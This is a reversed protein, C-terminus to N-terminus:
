AKLSVVLPYLPTDAAFPSCIKKQVVTSYRLLISKRLNDCNGCAVHLDEQVRTHFQWILNKQHNEPNRTRNIPSTKILLSIAWFITSTVSFKGTDGTIARANGRIVRSQKMRMINHVYRRFGPEKDWQSPFAWIYHHNRTRNMRKDALDVPNKLAWHAPLRRIRIKTKGDSNWRAWVRCGLEEEGVSLSLALLGKLELTDRGTNSSISSKDLQTIM